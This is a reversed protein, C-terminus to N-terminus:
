SSYGRRRQLDALLGYPKEGTNPDYTNAKEIKKDLKKLRKGHSRLPSKSIFSKNFPSNM